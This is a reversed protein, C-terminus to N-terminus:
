GTSADEARVLQRAIGDAWADIDPWDRHDGYRGGFATLFLHGSLSWHSREVAGAFTRHDRARIAARLGAIGKPENRM